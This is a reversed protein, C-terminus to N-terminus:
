GSQKPPPAGPARPQARGEDSERERGGLLLRKLTRLDNLTRHGADMHFGLRDLKYVVLRLAELRREAGEAAAAAVDVEVDKRTKEIVERLLDLYELSGEISDFPTRDGAM